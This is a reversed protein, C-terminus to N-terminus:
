AAIYQTEFQSQIPKDSVCMRQTATSPTLQLEETLRYNNKDKSPHARRFCMHLIVVGM